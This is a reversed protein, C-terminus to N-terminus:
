QAVIMLGFLSFLVYSGLLTALTVPVGLTQVPNVRPIISM